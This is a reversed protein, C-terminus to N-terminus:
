SPPNLALSMVSGAVASMGFVVAFWARGVVRELVPGAWLLVFGNAALHMLSTHLFTASVMRYWEGNAVILPRSSGGMATLTRLSPEVLGTPQDLGFGLECAFVAVLAALLTFTLWPPGAKGAGALEMINGESTRAGHIRM